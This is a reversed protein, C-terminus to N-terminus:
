PELEEPRFSLKAGDSVRTVRVYSRYIGAGWGDIVYREAAEADTEPERRKCRRGPRVEHDYVDTHGYVTRRCIRTPTWM